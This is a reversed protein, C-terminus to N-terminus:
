PTIRNEIVGLKSSPNPSFFVEDNKTFFHIPKQVVEGKEPDRLLGPVLTRFGGRIKDLVFNTRLSILFGL